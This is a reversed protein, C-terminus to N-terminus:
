GVAQLALPDVAAARARARALTDEWVRFLRRVCAPTGQPLVAEGAAGRRADWPKPLGALGATFHVTRARAWEQCECDHVYAGIEPYPLPSWDPFLAMLVDQDNATARAAALRHIERLARDLDARRPSRVSMVGSNLSQGHAAAGAAGARPEYVHCRRGQPPDAAAQLQAAAGAPFLLEEVPAVAIVDSDVFAARRLPLEYLRLKGFAAAWRQAATELGRPLELQQTDVLRCGLAQLLRRSAGSVGSGTLVWLPRTAGHEHLSQALAAAGLAYGDSDALTVYAEPAAGPATPPARPRQRAATSLSSVAVWAVCAVVLLVLKNQRRLAHWVAGGRQSDQRADGAGYLPLLLRRHM